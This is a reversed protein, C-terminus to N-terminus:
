SNRDRYSEYGFRRVVRLEGEKTWICLSPLQVGNFTTNKVITYHIMDEFVIRDGVKLPAAFSYDGIVDGALCTNGGLRYTHPLKGPLDAGRVAPRYPMELTDPMHATASVDLIAIDAGNKVIDLVSGVLPGTQWGVAEGPEIYVEVGWKERFAKVVRILRDVDYDARTIHHGGGFNIWKMRPIFAGYLNEFSTVVRELTDSNNGCHAHFHLGTIGELEDPRFESRLVGLRSGTYCPDYLPTEIESHGPNVRIGCEVARGSSKVQGRFRAWQSFSNFVLHDAMALIEPFEEDTYAVSYVHTERGFEESALRAEHLSSATAGHLVERVWPFASWFAFGKLALIVKAGSEKQVRDLVALNRRLLAEELVYSPSPVRSVDLPVATKPTM